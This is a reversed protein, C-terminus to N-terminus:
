SKTSARLGIGGCSPGSSLFNLSKHASFAPAFYIDDTFVRTTFWDFLVYLRWNVVNVAERTGHEASDGAVAVGFVETDFAGCRWYESIESSM